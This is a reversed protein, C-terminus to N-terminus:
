DSIQEEPSVTKDLESDIREFIQVYEEMKNNSIGSASDREIAVELARRAEAYEGAGLFLGAIRTASSTSPRIDDVQKFLRLASDGDGVRLYMNGAIVLISAIGSSRANEFVTVKELVRAYQSAIQSCALVLMMQELHSAAPRLGDTWRHLHVRSALIEPDFRLPRDYACSIGASMVPISLDYDFKEYIFDLHDLASDPLGNNALHQAFTRQARPSDPHESAWIPIIRDEDGWEGSFGWTIGSAIVLLLTCFVYYFRSFEASLRLFAASLVAMFAFSLGALSLYNRHEFYIELAVTTSEILHGVYFWLVGFAFLQFRTRCMFAITILLVHGLASLMVVPNALSSYIPFDDHFLGLKYVQFTFISQLYNWLVVPETLVREALSFERFAYGGQWRPIYLVYFIIVLSPFWIALRRWWKFLEGGGIKALLTLELVSIFVPLLAGNEKSFIALLTFCGLNLSLLILAQTGVSVNRTRLYAHIAVGAVIFLASLQTMRQVVYLVTSVQLPHVVWLGVAFIAIWDAREATTVIRGLLRLFVFLLVGILLHILINTQKFSEPSSPWANDNLLFTLKSIPRDLPGANGVALYQTLSRADTVGVELAGLNDFDDLMFPGSKGPAYVFWGVFILLFLSLSILISHRDIKSELM